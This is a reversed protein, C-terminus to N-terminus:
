GRRPIVSREEGRILPSPLAEKKGGGVTEGGKKRFLLQRHGMTEFNAPQPRSSLVSFISRRRRQEDFGWCGVVLRPIPSVSADILSSM